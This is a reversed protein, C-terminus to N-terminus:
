SANHAASLAAHHQALYRGGRSEFLTLESAGFPESRFSSLGAKVEALAEDGQRPRARAVTVHGTWPELPLGLAQAVAQALETLRTLEGGLGLWLVRPRAGGFTGAGALELRMPARVAAVEGLRQALDPLREVPTEGLFALTVHLGDPRTWKASVHRWPEVAVRIAEKLEAPLELAVFLRM